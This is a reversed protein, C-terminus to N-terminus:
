LPSNRKNIARLSCRYPKQKSIKGEKDAGNHKGQSEQKKKVDQNCFKRLGGVLM